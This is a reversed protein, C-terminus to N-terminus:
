IRLSGYQEVCVYVFVCVCISTYVTDYNKYM